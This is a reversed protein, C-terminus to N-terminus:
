IFNNPHYGDIREEQCDSSLDEATARRHAVTSPPKGIVVVDASRALRERLRDENRGCRVAALGVLGIGAVCALAIVLIVM